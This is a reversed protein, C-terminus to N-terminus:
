RAARLTVAFTRATTNGAADRLGIAIRAAVAGRRALTLRGARSLRLRVVVARRRRIHFTRHAVTRRRVSVRVAGWAEENVPGIRLRLVGSRTARLTHLGRM